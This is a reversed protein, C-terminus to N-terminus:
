LDFRYRVKMMFQSVTPYRFSERALAGYSGEASSDGGRAYVLFLDSLPAFEYRYRLQLAFTGQSIDASPASTLTQFLDGTDDIEWNSTPRARLGLWQMSLKLQQRPSLLATLDIRPTIQLGEYTAFTRAKQWILWGSLREVTVNTEMSFYESPSLRVVLSALQSFGGLDEGRGEAIVGLIWPKSKDSWAEVRAELRDAVRFAGNGRSNRDDWHRPEYGLQATIFTNGRFTLDQTLQFLTDVLQRDTNWGHNTLFETRMEKLLGDLPRTRTYTYEVRSLDNRRLYGFDNLQLKDGYHELALEHTDGPSPTLTNEVWAGYAGEGSRLSFLGQGDTQWMGNATHFHGDMSGVWATTRPTQVVTGLLGLARYGGGEGELLVRGTGFKRGKLRANTVSDDTLLKYNADSEAAGMVGYQVNGTQGVLKTAALIESAGPLGEIRTGSSVAPREPANGIRRTHVVNVRGTQFIDQGETFFPRKEPFFTEFASLNVVLEDADVQGFDPLITASLRTQATPNWFADLGARFGPKMGTQDLNPSAYPYLTINPRPEVDEVVMPQFASLFQPNAAPIAPWTWRENLAAVWRAFYLGIRRQKEVGQPLAFMSWPLLAEASWGDPRSKTARRWPGDWNWNYRREPLLTSDAASGGLFIGFIYGYRGTGTPDIGIQILDGELWLDHPSLRQVQQELPQEAWVGVYIGKESYFVKALTPYTPKNGSNPIVVVFDSLTTADAWAPENLEGDIQIRASDESIRPLPLAGSAGVLSAILIHSLLMM